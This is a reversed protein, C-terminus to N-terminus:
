PASETHRRWWDLLDDLSQSLPIAPEWGTERTVRAASGLVLPLEVARMRAPDTVITVPVRARAVLGTVIDRIPVARGSCVNYVAGRSGSAVIREYARVMDRVDTVDRQPDLNGVTVTPEARDAEILAVQRAISSAVFDASQRPGIHNFARAVVVDLGDLDAAQLTATEQALKSVAYAGAPGIPSSEDLPHPSAKYVLASSTVLLRADPANRRVAELLNATGHVNVEFLAGVTDATGGSRAIGACHYVVSPRAEAVGRMVANADRVDVSAWRAGLDAVDSGRGRRAWATVEAGQRTLLEVLHSGAFGGAGTVLVRQSM